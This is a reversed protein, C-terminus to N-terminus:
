FIAISLVNNFLVISNKYLKAIYSNDIIGFGTGFPLNSVYKFAVSAFKVFDNLGNSLCYTNFNPSSNPNSCKLLKINAEYALSKIPHVVYSNKFFCLIM